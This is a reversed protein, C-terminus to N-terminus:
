ARSGLESFGIESLAPADAVRARDAQLERFGAIVNISLVWVIRQARRVVPNAIGLMRLEVLRDGLRARRLVTSGADGMQISAIGIM